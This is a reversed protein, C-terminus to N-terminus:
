AGKIIDDNDMLRMRRTSLEPMADNRTMKAISPKAKRRYSQALMMKAQMLQSRKLTQGDVSVDYAGVLVAAWYELLDAASAYLDYIKGTIFVPPLQGPVTGNVFPTNEFMWHGVIYDSLTPTLVIWAAGTSGQGQLVADSEWNSYRSYYDAFITSAQNNTSATNVISPAITMGEYRIDDRHDDLANQIDLDAFQPSGSPDNIKLRVLAILDAM